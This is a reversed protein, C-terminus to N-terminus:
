RGKCGRTASALEVRSLEITVVPEVGELLMGRLEAREPEDAFYASLLASPDAYRIAFAPDM